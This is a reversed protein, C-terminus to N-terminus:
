TKLSAERGAEHKDGDSAEDNLKACLLAQGLAYAVGLLAGRLLALVLSGSVGFWASCRVAGRTVSAAASWGATKACGAGRRREAALEGREATSLKPDNPWKM